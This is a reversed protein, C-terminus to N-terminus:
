RCLKSVQKETREAEASVTEHNKHEDMVCMLCICQQDSRCFAELLRDHKSCIMEQIRGTADTLKHRKSSRSEEHCEFHTQCYSELCMLCSKIAKRKRATCVDCEVDGPGAYSLSQAMQDKKKQLKEVMEAFMVNKSLAPRPSFTQRCQPCSYVRKQDDKNWCDTICNMCYSHGCPITAPDKLLDLCISCIFQDEAVSIKAEAMASCEILCLSLYLSKDICLNRKRKLSTHLVPLLNYGTHSVQTKIDLLSCGSPTLRVSFGLCPSPHCLSMSQTHSVTLYYIVNTM